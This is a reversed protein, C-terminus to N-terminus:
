APQKRRNGTKGHQKVTKYAITDATIATNELKILIEDLRSLAEFFADLDNELWVRRGLLDAVGDLEEMLEIVDGLHKGIEDMHGELLRALKSDKKMLSILGLINNEANSALASVHKQITYYLKGAFARYYHALFTKLKESSEAEEYMKKFYEMLEGAGPKDYTSRYTDMSLESLAHKLIDLADYLDYFGLGLRVLKCYVDRDGPRITDLTREWLRSRIVVPRKEHFLSKFAQV